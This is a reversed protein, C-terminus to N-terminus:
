TRGQSNRSPMLVYQTVTFMVVFLAGAISGTALAGVPHMIDSGACIAVLDALPGNPVFGPDNRGVVLAAPTGGAALATSVLFKGCTKRANNV